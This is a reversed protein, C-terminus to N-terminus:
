SLPPPARLLSNTLHLQNICFQTKFSQYTITQNVIFTNNIFFIPLATQLNTLSQQIICEYTNGGVLLFDSAIAKRESELKQVVSFEFHHHHLIGASLSILYISLFIRQIGIRYKSTIINM